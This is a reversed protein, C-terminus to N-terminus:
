TSILRQTQTNRNVFNKFGEIDQEGGLVHIQNPSFVVYFGVIDSEKAFKEDYDKRNKDLFISMGRRIIMTDNSTDNRKGAYSPNERESGYWDGPRHTEYKNVNILASVITDDRDVYDATSFKSYDNSINHNSPTLFYKGFSPDFGNKLINEYKQKSTGHYVIDKVKSRPFITSLYQSYEEKTGIKGLEPNSNFVFDVGSKNDENKKNEYIFQLFNKVKSIQQRMEKSM